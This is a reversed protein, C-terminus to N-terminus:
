EVRDNIRKWKEAINRINTADRRGQPDRLYDGIEIFDTGIRRMLRSLLGFLMAFLYCPISLVLLLGM